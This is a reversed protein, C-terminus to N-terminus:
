ANGANTSLVPFVKSRWFLSSNEGCQEEAALIMLHRLAAPNDARCFFVSVLERFGPTLALPAMWADDVWIRHSRPQQKAVCRLLSEPSRAHLNCVVISYEFEQLRSIADSNSRALDIEFDAPMGVVALGTLLTARDDLVLIRPHDPFM